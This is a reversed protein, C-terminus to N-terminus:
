KQIQISIEAMNHIELADILKSDDIIQYLQIYIYIYIYLLSPSLPESMNIITFSSKVKLM